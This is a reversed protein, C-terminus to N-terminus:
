SMSLPGPSQHGPALLATYLILTQDSEVRKYWWAKRTGFRWLSLRVRRYTLCLGDASRLVRWHCGNENLIFDLAWKGDVEGDGVLNWHQCGKQAETLVVVM